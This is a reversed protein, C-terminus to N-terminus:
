ATPINVTYNKIDYKAQPIVSTLERLLFMKSRFSLRKSHSVYIRIRQSISFDAKNVFEYLCITTYIIWGEM